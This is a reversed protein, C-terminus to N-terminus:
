RFAVYYVSPFKQAVEYTYLKIYFGTSTVYGYSGAYEKSIIRIAAWKATALNFVPIEEDDNGKTYLLVLSPRFGLNINREIFSESSPISISGTVILSSLSNKVADVDAKRAADGASVPAALNTLKQGNMHIAGTMTGGALPLYEMQPLQTGPVKGNDDLQAVGNPAGKENEPIAGAQAATVRHPNNQSGTHKDLNKQVTDAYAFIDQAKGTPDYVARTMDGSGQGDLGKAAILLWHGGDTPATGTSPKINVYSSGGFSVKNGPVYAKQPDYTEWLARAQEAQERKGEASERGKEATDRAQENAQRQVEAAARAAEAAQRAQEATGRQDEATKREQEATERAEEAAIRAQENEQRETENAIRENENEVREAEAKAWEENNDEVEKLEDLAANVAPAVIERVLRDFVGKNEQATGTLTDPAAVVGKEAIQEPTIKYRIVGGAEPPSSKEIDPMTYDIIPM